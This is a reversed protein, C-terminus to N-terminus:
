NMSKIHVRTIQHQPLMVSFKGFRVHSGFFLDQRDLKQPLGYSGFFPDKLPDPHQMLPMTEQLEMLRQQM